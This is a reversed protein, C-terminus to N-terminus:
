IEDSKELKIIKEIGDIMKKNTKGRRDVPPWEKKVVDHIEEPIWLLYAALM